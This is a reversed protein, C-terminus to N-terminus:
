TKPQDNKKKRKWFSSSNNPTRKKVKRSIINSIKDKIISIKQAQLARKMTTEILSFFFDNNTLKNSTFNHLGESAYTTQIDLMKLKNTFAVVPIRAFYSEKIATSDKNLNYVIVLDIKKRLKFLLKNTKGIFTAGNKTRLLNNNIKQNRNSLMGNSWVYEPVIIHNTNKLIKKFNQPFGLFLIRKNTIHYRYIIDSIKNLHLELQKLSTKFNYAKKKYYLKLLQIQLLKTQYNKIKKIKM